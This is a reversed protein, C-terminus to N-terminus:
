FTLKKKLDFEFLIINIAKWSFGNGKVVIIFPQAVTFRM